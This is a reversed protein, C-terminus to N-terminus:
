CIGASITRLGNIAAAAIALNYVISTASAIARLRFGAETDLPVVITDGPDINQSRSFFRSGRAIVAGNAKVVYINKSAASPAIGGSNNIYDNLSKNKAYLHSTPFNVEGIVTVEQTRPPILLQDQNDLYVQLSPDDPNALMQPLDIVLRGVAEASSLEALVSSGASQTAFAIQAGGGEVSGTSRLALLALDGQLRERLLALQETERAKLETRLFLSGEPFAQETLGGAREIVDILTDGEKFAYRGPFRIEGRLTVYFENDWNAKRLVSLYDQPLLILDHEPDGAMAKQLDIERIDSTRASGDFSSTYRALEATIPYASETMGGGAKLLKSVRM